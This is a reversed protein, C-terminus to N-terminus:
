GYSEISAMWIVREGLQTNKRILPWHTQGCKCSVLCNVLVSMIFSMKDIEDHRISLDIIFFFLLLLSGVKMSSSLIIIGKTIQAM